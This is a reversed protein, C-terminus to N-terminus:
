VYLDSPVRRVHVSLRDQSPKRAALAVFPKGGGEEFDAFSVSAVERFGLANAFADRTAQTTAQTTIAKYANDRAVDITARWLGRM